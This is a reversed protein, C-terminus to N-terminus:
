IRTYHFLYLSRFLLPTSFTVVCVASLSLSALTYFFYQVFSAFLFIPTDLFDLFEGTLM